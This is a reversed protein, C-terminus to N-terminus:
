PRSAMMKKGARKCREMWRIRRFGTRFLYASRGRAVSICSTIAVESGHCYKQKRIMLKAEWGLRTPPENEAIKQVLRPRLRRGKNGEPVHRYKEDCM